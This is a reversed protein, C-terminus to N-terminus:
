ENGKDAQETFKIVSVDADKNRIELTVSATKGGELKVSCVFTRGAEVKEDSPCDVSSVKEKRSSAINAELQEETKTADLVTEGCGPFVLLGLLAAVGLLAYFSRM